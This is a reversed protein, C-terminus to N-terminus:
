TKIKMRFEKIPAVKSDPCEVIHTAVDVVYSIFRAENAAWKVTDTITKAPNELYSKSAEFIVFEATTM